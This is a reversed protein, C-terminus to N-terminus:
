SPPAPNRDPTPGSGSASSEDADLVHEGFSSPIGISGPKLTGRNILGLVVPDVQLKSTLLQLLERAYPYAAFYGTTGAVFEAADLEPAYGEEVRYDVLLSFEVRALPEPSGEGGLGGLLEFRYDFRNGLISEEAAFALDVDFTVRTPTVGAPIGDALEAVIRCPRVDILEAHALLDKARELLQPSPPADEEGLRPEL